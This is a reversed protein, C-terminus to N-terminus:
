SDGYYRRRAREHDEPTWEFLDLPYQLGSADLDNRITTPTGESRSLRIEDEVFASQHAPNVSGHGHPPPNNLSESNYFVWLHAAVRELLPDMAAAPDTPQIQTPTQHDGSHPPLQGITGTSRDDFINSDDPTQIGAGSGFIVPAQSALTPLPNTSSNWGESSSAAM